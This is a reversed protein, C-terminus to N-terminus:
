STANLLDFPNAGPRFAHPRSVQQERYRTIMQRQPSIWSLLTKISRDVLYICYLNLRAMDVILFFTNKYWKISKRLSEVCDMLIDAEHIILMKPHLWCSSRAEKNARRYHLRKKWNPRDQDRSNINVYPGNTKCVVQFVGHCASVKGCNGGPLWPVVKRPDFEIM